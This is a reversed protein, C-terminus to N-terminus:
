AFGRWATPVVEVAKAAVPVRQRTSAVRDSSLAALLLLVLGLAALALFVKGSPLGTGEDIASQLRKTEPRM